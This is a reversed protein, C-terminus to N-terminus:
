QLNEWLRTTRYGRQAYTKSSVHAYCKQFCCIWIRKQWQTRVCFIALAMQHRFLYRFLNWRSTGLWAFCRFELSPWYNSLLRTIHVSHWNRSSRKLVRLTGHRAYNVIIRRWKNEVCFHMVTEDGPIIRTASICFLLTLKISKRPALMETSWHESCNSWSSAPPNCWV